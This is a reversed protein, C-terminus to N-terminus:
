RDTETAPPPPLLARVGEGFNLTEAVRRARWGDRDMTLLTFGLDDHVTWCQADPRKQAYWQLHGHQGIGELLAALARWNAATSPYGDKYAEIGERCWALMEPLTPDPM